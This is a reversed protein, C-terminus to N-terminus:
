TPFMRSRGSARSTATKRRRLDVTHHMWGHMVASDSAEALGNYIVWRREFHLTPRGQRRPGTIATAQRGRSWSASGGRGCNPALTQGNWWTFLKLFFQKMRKGSIGLSSDQHWRV